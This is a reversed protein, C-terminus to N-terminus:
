QRLSSPVDSELRFAVPVSPFHSLSSMDDLMDSRGASPHVETCGWAEERPRSRPLPCLALGLASPRTDGDEVLEMTRVDSRAIGDAAAEQRQAVVLSQRDVRAHVPLDTRIARDCRAQDVGVNPGFTDAHAIRDAGAERALLERTRDLAELQRGRDFDVVLYAQENASPELPSRLVHERCALILVPGDPAQDVRQGSERPASSRRSRTLSSRWASFMRWATPISVRPGHGM